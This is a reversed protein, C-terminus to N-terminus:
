PCQFLYEDQGWPVLPLFPANTRDLVQNWRQFWHCEEAIAGWFGEPNSISNQYEVEYLNSM